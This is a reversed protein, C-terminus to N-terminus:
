KETCLRCREFVDANLSAAVAVAAITTTTTAAELRSSLEHDNSSSFGPAITYM